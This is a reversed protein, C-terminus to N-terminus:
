DITRKMKESDNKEFTNEIMRKTLTVSYFM